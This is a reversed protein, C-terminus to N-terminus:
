ISWNLLHWVDLLPVVKRGQVVASHEMGTIMGSGDAFVWSDTNADYKRGLFQNDNENVQM